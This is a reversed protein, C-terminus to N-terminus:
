TQFVLHVPQQLFLFLLAIQYDPRALSVELLQVGDSLEIRYSSLQGLCLDLALEVRGAVLDVSLALGGVGASLWNFYGLSQAFM